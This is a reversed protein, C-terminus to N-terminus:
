GPTKKPDKTRPYTREEEVTNDAKRIRVSGGEPGVDAKLQKLADSKSEYTATPRDSGEKELRWMESKPDKHLTFMDVAM